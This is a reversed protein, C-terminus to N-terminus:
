LHGARTAEAAQCCRSPLIVLAHRNYMVSNGTMGYWTQQRLTAYRSSQNVLLLMKKILLERVAQQATM